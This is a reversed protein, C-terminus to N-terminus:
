SNEKPVFALFRRPNDVLIKHLIRDNVGAYSLKPVFQKLLAGYGEGWNAKLQPVPTSDSSLLLQDEFGADLIALVYKVKHQEPIASQSMLHGVTDFGLFAGRKGLLKATQALPEADPKITSLHGICTRHPDVGVSEFADLQDIACDPCGAHPTHTFISLGTRVQARGIARLVKKEEPRTPQSTAIEGFAGWRQSPVDRVLEDSIQEESMKMISDPYRGGMALDEGYGGGLIVHVGSRSSIQKLNEITHQDRHGGPDALCVLGEARAMKLEEVMLDLYEAEDRPAVVGPELEGPGPPPTPVFRGGLHQHFQVSGAPMQEPPIDKLVTRIVAGKPFTVKNPSTARFWSGTEAVAPLSGGLCLAATGFAAGAQLLRLAERRSIGPLSNDRM